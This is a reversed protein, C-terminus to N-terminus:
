LSLASVRMSDITIIHPYNNVVQLVMNGGSAIVSVKMSMNDGLVNSQSFSVDSTLTQHAVIESTRIKSNTQSIVTIFWKASRYLSLSLSDITTTSSAAATVKPLAGTNGSGQNVDAWVLERPALPNNSRVLMQGAAGDVNVFPRKPLEIQVFDNFAM